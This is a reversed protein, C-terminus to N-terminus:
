VTRVGLVPTKPESLQGPQCLQSANSFVRVQYILKEQWFGTALSLGPGM